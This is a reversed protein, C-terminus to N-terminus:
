SCASYSHYYILHGVTQLNVIIKTVFLNPLLLYEKYTENSSCIYFKKAISKVRRFVTRNFIATSTETM